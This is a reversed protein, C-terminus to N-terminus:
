TLGKDYTSFGNMSTSVKFRFYTDGTGFHQFYQWDLLLWDGM